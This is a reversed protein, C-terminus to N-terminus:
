KFFAKPFTEINLHLVDFLKYLFFIVVLVIAGVVINISAIIGQNKDWHNDLKKESGNLYEFFSYNPSQSINLKRFVTGYLFRFLAGIFELILKM